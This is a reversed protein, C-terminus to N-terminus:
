KLLCNGNHNEYHIEQLLCSVYYFAGLMCLDQLNTSTSYSANKGPFITGLGNLYMQLSIISRSLIQKHKSSPIQPNCHNKQRFNDLREDQSVETIIVDLPSISLCKMEVEEEYNTMLQNVLLKGTKLRNEEKAAHDHIALKQDGHRQRYLLLGVSM